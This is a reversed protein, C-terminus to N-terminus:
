EYIRRGTAGPFVESGDADYRLRGDAGVHKSQNGAIPDSGAPPNLAGSFGLARDLRGRVSEAALVSRDSELTWLVGAPDRYKDGSKRLARGAELRIRAELEDRAEQGPDELLDSGADGAITAAERAIAEDLELGLGELPYPEAGHVHIRLYMM